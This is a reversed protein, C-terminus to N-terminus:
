ISLSYHYYLEDRIYDHSEYLKQANINDISTALSVRVANTEQAFMRVQEFTKKAVGKNRAIPM